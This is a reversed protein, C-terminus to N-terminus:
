TDDTKKKKKLWFGVWGTAASGPSVDFPIVPMYPIGLLFPAIFIKYIYFFLKIYEFNVESVPLSEDM